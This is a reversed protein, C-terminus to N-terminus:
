NHYYAIKGEDVKASAEVLQQLTAVFTIVFFIQSIYSKIDPTYWETPWLEEIESSLRYIAISEQRTCWFDQSQQGASVIEKSDLGSTVRYISEKEGLRRKISTEDTLFKRESIQRKLNRVINHLWYYGLRTILLGLSTRGFEALAVILTIRRNTVVFASFICFTFMMRGTDIVLVMLYDMSMAAKLAVLVDRMHILLNILIIPDRSVQRPSYYSAESMAIQQQKDGVIFVGSDERSPCTTIEPKYSEIINNTNESNNNNNDTNNNGATSSTASSSPSSSLLLPVQSAARSVHYGQRDLYSNLVPKPASDTPSHATQSTIIPTCFNTLMDCLTSTIILSVFISGYLQSTHLINQVVYVTLKLLLRLINATSFGYEYLTTSWLQWLTFSASKNPLVITDNVASVLTTITSNKPSSLTTNLIAAARAKAGLKARVYLSAEDRFLTLMAGVVFFSMLIIRLLKIRSMQRTHYGSIYSHDDSSEPWQGAKRNLFPIQRLRNFSSNSSSSKRKVSRKSEGHVLKVDLQKRLLITILNHYKYGTILSGIIIANGCIKYMSWFIKVNEWASKPVDSSKQPYEIPTIAISLLMIIIRYMIAFILNNQFMFGACLKIIWIEYFFVREINTVKDGRESEEEIKNSVDRIPNESAPKKFLFKEFTGKVNSGILRSISKM